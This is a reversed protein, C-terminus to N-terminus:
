LFTVEVGNTFNSTPSLIQDRHWLQFRLTTGPLVTFLTNPAPTDNLDIRMSLMGNPRSVQVEGPRNYRGIAGGLCLTGDSGGANPVVATGDAVLFMSAIGPPLSSAVLTVNDFSAEPDGIVALAGPDGTSNSVTQVCYSTGIEAGAVAKIWFPRIEPGAGGGTRRWGAILLGGRGDPTAVGLENSPPAAPLSDTSTVGLNADLTVLAPVGAANTVVAMSGGNPSPQLGGAVGMTSDAFSTDARVAGTAADLATIKAVDGSPGFGTTGVLVEGASGLVMGGAEQDSSALGSPTWNWVIVGTPDVAQVRTERGAAGNSTSTSQLLVNGSVPDVLVEDPRVSSGIGGSSTLTSWVTSGDNAYRTTRLPTQNFGGATQQISLILDDGAADLRSFSHDLISTRWLEAGSPDLRILTVHFGFEITLADLDIFNVGISVDGGPHEVAFGSLGNYLDSGPYPASVTRTWSPNGEFDLGEVEVQGAASDSVVKLFRGQGDSSVTVRGPSLPTSLPLLWRETGNADIARLQREGGSSGDFEFFAAGGRGDPFAINPTLDAPQTSDDSVRWLVSSQAAGLPAALVCLLSSGALALARAHTM